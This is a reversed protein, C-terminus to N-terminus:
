SHVPASGTVAATCGSSTVGPATGATRHMQTRGRGAAARDLAPWCESQAEFAFHSDPFVSSAIGFWQGCNAGGDIVVRPRYGSRLLQRLAADMADFRHAPARHVVYGAREIIRRALQKM